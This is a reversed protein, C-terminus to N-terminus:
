SLKSIVEPFFHHIGELVGASYNGNMGLLGGSAVYIRDSHGKKQNIALAEEKIEPRANKVLVARLGSVLVPMDNGSDGAFIIQEAPFKLYSQGLFEIAHLKTASAPLIDLLGVQREEDISWIFAANILLPETIKELKAILAHKDIESKTYFSVKFTSQQTPDDEQLRLDSIDDFLPKIQDWSYGSWDQAIIKQWDALPQWKQTPGVEYITTGVDGIAYEPIPLDFDTIAAQLLKKSRGSVYVLTVTPQAVLQALRPRATPSEPQEGNPIITRDLDSAILIQQM